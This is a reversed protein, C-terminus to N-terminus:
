REQVVRIFENAQFGGLCQLDESTLIEGLVLGVFPIFPPLFVLGMEGRFSISFFLTRVGVRRRESAEGKAPAVASLVARCSASNQIARPPLAVHSLPAHTAARSRRGVSKSTRREINSTRHVANPM